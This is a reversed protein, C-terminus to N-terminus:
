CCSTQNNGATIICKVTTHLYRALPLLTAYTKKSETHPDLVPFPLQNLVQKAVSEVALALAAAIAIAPAGRVNMARIAKWAEECSKIQIYEFEFPLKLQDL